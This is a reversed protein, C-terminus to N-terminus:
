NSNKSKSSRTQSSNDARFSINALSYQSGEQRGIEIDIEVDMIRKRYVTSLGPFSPSDEHEEFIQVDKSLNVLNENIKLQRQLVRKAALFQNEDPRRKTGPLRQGM